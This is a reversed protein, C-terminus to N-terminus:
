AHPLDKRYIFKWEGDKMNEDVEVDLGFLTWPHSTDLNGIIHASQKVISDTEKCLAAYVSTSCEFKTPFAEMEKLLKHYIKSMNDFNFPEVRATTTTQM